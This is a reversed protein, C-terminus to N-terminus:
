KNEENSNSFNEFIKRKEEWSKTGIPPLFPYQAGCWTCVHPYQEDHKIEEKPEVPGVCIYCRPISFFKEM